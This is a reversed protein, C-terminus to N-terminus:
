GAAQKPTREGNVAIDGMAMVDARRDKGAGGGVEGDCFMQNRGIADIRCTSPKRRCMGDVADGVDAVRRGDTLVARRFNKELEMKKIEVAVEVVLRNGDFQVAEDTRAYFEVRGGGELM